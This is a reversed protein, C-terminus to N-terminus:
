RGADKSPSHGSTGLDPLLGCRGGPLDGGIRQIRRGVARQGVCLAWVLGQQNRHSMAALRDDEVFSAGHCFLVSVTCCKGLGVCLADHIHQGQGFIQLGFHAM